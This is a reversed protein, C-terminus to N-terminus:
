GQFVLFFLLTEQGRMIRGTAALSSKVSIGEMDVVNQLESASVSFKM